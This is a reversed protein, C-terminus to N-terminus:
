QSALSTRISSISEEISKFYKFNEPAMPTLMELMENLNTPSFGRTVCTQVLLTLTIACVILRHTESGSDSLLGTSAPIEGKKVLQQIVDNVMEKARDM